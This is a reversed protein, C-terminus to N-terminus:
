PSSLAQRVQNRQRADLIIQDKRPSEAPQPGPGRPKGITALSRCSEVTM